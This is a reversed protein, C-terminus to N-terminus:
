YRFIAAVLTQGPAKMRDLPYVIGAHLITQV